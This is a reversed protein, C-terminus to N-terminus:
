AAVPVGVSEYIRPVYLPMAVLTEVPLLTYISATGFIMAADPVSAIASPDGASKMTCPADFEPTENEGFTTKEEPDRGLESVSRVANAEPITAAYEPVASAEFEFIWDNMAAAPLVPVSALTPPSKTRVLSPPLASVLVGGCADVQGVPNM